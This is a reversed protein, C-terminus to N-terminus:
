ASGQELKAAAAEVSLKGSRVDPYLAIIAPVVRDLTSLVTEPPPLRWGRPKPQGLAAWRKHALKLLERKTLGRYRMLEMTMKLDSKQFRKPLADNLLHVMLLASADAPQKFPAKGPALPLPGLRDELAAQLIAADRKECDRRVKWLEAEDIPGNLAYGVGEEVHVDDPHPLVSDPDRGHKLAENLLHQQRARINHGLAVDEDIKQQNLRQAMNIQYIANSIAHQGGNAAMQMLKRTVVEDMRVTQASGNSVISIERAAEKLLAQQLPTLKGWDGIGGDGRGQSSARGKRIAMM